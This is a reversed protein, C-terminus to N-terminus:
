TPKKHKLYANLESIAEKFNALLRKYEINIRALEAREEVTSPAPLSALKDILLARSGLTSVLKSYSEELVFDSRENRVDDLLGKVGQIVNRIGENVADWDAKSPNSMMLYEDISRVVIQQNISGLDTARASLRILRDREREASVYNYGDAGAIVLHKIGDTLKAIADGTAGIAEVADKFLNIRSAATEQAHAILPMVILVLTILLRPFYRFM